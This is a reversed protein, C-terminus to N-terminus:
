KLKGHLRHQVQQRAASPFDAQVAGRQFERADFIGFKHDFWEKSNQIGIGDLQGPSQAFAGAAGIVYCAGVFVKEALESKLSIRVIVVIRAVTAQIMHEGSAGADGNAQRRHIQLDRAAQRPRNEADPQGAM